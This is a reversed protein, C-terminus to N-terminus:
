ISEQVTNSPEVMDKDVNSVHLHHHHRHGVLNLTLGLGQADHM